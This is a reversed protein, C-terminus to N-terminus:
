GAHQKFYEDSAVFGSIVDENTGGHQFADVWSAIEADSATRGLFHQYDSQVRAQEREPSAAFDYAIAARPIGQALAQVWVSEGARDAARGLLQQYMADVWDLDTGGSLTYFEQSAAFGAELQQDTLGARMAQTWGLLGQSDAARGLFRQYDSQIIEGFYEDSHTLANTFLIASMGQDLQTSWFALAGADVERHLLDQFAAAVYRENPTAYQPPPQVPPPDTENITLTDTTTGGLTANTPTGLAFTITNDSTTFQGDDILTGTITGSTQGAAIVLPSSTVGSYNVGSVATGGLTFPVTTDTASAASLSVTISFTGANENVSQGATSFQVTPPPPTLLGYIDLSDATGVFVQGDAVVPVSFKIASGLQDRGNPAQSSTYLEKAVNTADYARLQSTDHEVQWIIGGTGGNSSISSIAGPFAYSDPSTATPGSFAANSVSFSQLHANFGTFYFNGNFYGPPGYAAPMLGFQGQVIQDAQPNFKGLNNRDLLFVTGDKSGALLLHPHAASGASAPLLVPASSGLDSDQANLVQTNYPTFYDAVKLGWGNANQNTPSSTPDVVLKLVCDGYDHQAPFGNGDLTGDFTGNGTSLYLNGAADSAISGGSQWIAGAAGNPTTNFAAVTTMTQANVGLLWGHYNAHDSYSGFGVYVVGNVLSLAPRQLQIMANFTVVGNVSDTGTGNVAPGSVYQYSGNANLVTDGLVDPGAFKESGDGLNIAHLRHIFHTQGGIIEKTLAEVYLTNTSPDIVPTSTIGIEPLMDLMSVDSSPVTTVGHAPDIFSKQWLVQGSHADIAYLSDHETAVYVVDHLGQQSGTTINVQAVYLPQAYVQGDLPTSNLLGFDNANVNAPTLVTENANHGQDTPGNRYSFVDTSLLDRRELSEVFVGRRASQM